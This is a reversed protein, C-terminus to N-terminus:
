RLEMEQMPSGGDETMYISRRAFEAAGRAAIFESGEFFIPPIKGVTALLSENLVSRFTEDGASDGLLLVKAPGGTGPLGQKWTQLANSVRKWYDNKNRADFGLDWDATWRLQLLFMWYASHMTTCITRLGGRTYLVSLVEESPVNRLESKCKEPDTYESCLGHGYGAYVACTEPVFKGSRYISALQLGAYKFADVVDEEYLAILTPTVAVIPVHNIESGLFATAKCKLNQAMTSLAAVDGSAPLGIAKRLSRLVRRPADVYFEDFEAYPPSLITLISLIPLIAQYISFITQHHCPCASSFKTISPIQKWGGSM